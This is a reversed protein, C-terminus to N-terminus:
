NCNGNLIKIFEDESLFCINVGKEILDYAKEEKTSLGDEGVISKDQVGVVLYDTKRSVGSKVLGGVDLVKQMADKRDLSLLEGTFVFNKGYFPHNCNFESTAAELESIKFKDFRKEKTMVKNAKIESFNHINVNRFRKIYSFLDKAKGKEICKLVISACAIADDLANHHMGIEIGFYCARDELSNGCGSCVQSSINMSDLYQFDNAAISYTDLCKKLVSMDFQANHAIIYGAEAFYHSIKEWIQPFQECNMVDQYTIGHVEVNEHRFHDTPPKILIYEKEVIVGNQCAVIGVACASNLQNNATEFDITIFDYM